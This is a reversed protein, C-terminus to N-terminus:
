RMKEQFEHVAQEPSLNLYIETTELRDHGLIKKLSATSIGRQVCNVAFTHRLVHPSVPKTIIARDAVRKVIRQATRVTLGIRDATILHMELLRKARHTLPVIRRKGRKGYPGGKGWVVMRDEQWHIDERRLSCLEGIRLGTDLLTWVVLKERFSRCANVLQDTEERNLPERVYVYTMSYEQRLGKYARCNQRRGRRDGCTVVWTLAELNDYNHASPSLWGLGSAQDSAGM